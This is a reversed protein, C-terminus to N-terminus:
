TEKGVHHTASKKTRTSGPPNLFNMNNHAVQKNINLNLYEVLFLLPLLQRCGYHREYQQFQQLPLYPVKLRLYIIGHLLM